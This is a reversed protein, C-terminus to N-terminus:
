NWANQGLALCWCRKPLSGKFDTPQYGTARPRDWNKFGTIWGCVTVYEYHHFSVLTYYICLSAQSSPGVNGPSLELSWEEKTISDQHFQHAKIDWFFVAPDLAFLQWQCNRGSAKWLQPLRATERKGILNEESYFVGKCPLPLITRRTRLKGFPWTHIQGKMDWVNVTLNNEVSKYSSFLDNWKGHIRISSMYQLRPKNRHITCCLDRNRFKLCTSPM